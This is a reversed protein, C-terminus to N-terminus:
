DKKKRNRERRNPLHYKDCLRKNAQRLAERERHMAELEESDGEAALREQELLEHFAREEELHLLESCKRCLGTSRNIKVGTAGCGPCVSRVMLSVHNRSARSEIAKVSHRVGCEKWIRDAVVEAGLYSYARLVDDQEEDWRM